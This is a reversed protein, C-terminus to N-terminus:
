RDSGDPPKYQSNGMSATFLSSFLIKKNVQLNNPPFYQQATMGNLIHIWTYCPDNSVNRTTQWYSGIGPFVKWTRLKVKLYVYKWKANLQLGIKDGWCLLLQKGWCCWQQHKYISTQTKSESRETKDDTGLVVIGAQKAAGEWEERAEVAAAGGAVRLCPLVVSSYTLYRVETQIVAM